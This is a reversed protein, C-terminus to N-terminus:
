TDRSLSLRVGGARSLGGVLRGGDDVVCLVRVEPDGFWRLAVDAASQGGIGVRLPVMVDAAVAGSSKRWRAKVRRGGFLPPVGAGGHFELKPLLDASNVVGIPRGGEDVVPLASVAHAVMTASLETFPTDPAATLVAATMVDSVQPKRM